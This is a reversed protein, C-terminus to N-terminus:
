PAVELPDPLREDPAVPPPAAAELGAARIRTFVFSMGFHLLALVMLLQGINTAALEIGGALDQPWPRSRLWLALFGYAM